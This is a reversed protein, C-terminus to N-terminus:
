EAKEQFDYQMIRNLRQTNKGLNEQEPEPVLIAQSKALKSSILSRASFVSKTPNLKLPPLEPM